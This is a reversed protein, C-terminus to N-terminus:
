RRRSSGSSRSSPGPRSRCSATSDVDRAHGPHGCQHSYKELYAACARSSAATSAARSRAPRPDGRPRRPLGGGHADRPGRARDVVAPAAALEAARVSRGIGCTRSASSRPSATTCRAPSGSASPSSRARASARACARAPSRSRRSTPCRSSSGGTRARHVATDRRRGLWLDGLAATRAASRRGRGDPRYRGRLPGPLEAAREHPAVFRDTAAPCASRRRRHARCRGSAPEDLQIARSSAERSACRRRTPGSCSAHTASSRRGPHRGPGGPQLDPAPRRVPRAGRAPSAQPRGRVPRDPDLGRAPPRHQQAHGDRAPGTRRRGRAPAAPTARRGIDRDLAPHRHSAPVLSGIRRLAALRAARRSSTARLRGRRDPTATPRSSRSSRRPRAPRIRHRERAGRRHHRRRRARGPRRDVRCQRGDARPEAPRAAAADSRDGPVHRVRLGRGRVITVAALALHGVNDDGDGEVFALRFAELSLIFAVPLIVGLWRLAISRVGARPSATRGAHLCPPARGPERRPHEPGDRHAM